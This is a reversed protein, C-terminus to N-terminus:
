LGKYTGRLAKSRRLSRRSLFEARCFKPGQKGGVGGSCDHPSHPRVAYQVVVVGLSELHSQSQEALKCRLCVHSLYPYAEMAKDPDLFEMRGGNFKNYIGAVGNGISGALRVPRQGFM